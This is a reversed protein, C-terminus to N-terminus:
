ELSVVCSRNLHHSLCVPDLDGLGCGAALLLGELHVGWCEALLLAMFYVCVLDMRILM